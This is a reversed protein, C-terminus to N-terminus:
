QPVRRPCGTRHLCRPVPRQSDRRAAGKPGRSQMANDTASM